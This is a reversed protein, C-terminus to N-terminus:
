EEEFGLHGGSVENVDELAGKFVAYPTALDKMEDLVKLLYPRQHDEWGMDTLEQDTLDKIATVDETKLKEIDNLATRSTGLAANFHAKFTLMDM